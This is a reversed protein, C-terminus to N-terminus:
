PNTDYPHGKHDGLDHFHQNFKNIPGSPNLQDEKWNTPNNIISTRIAELERENRIIREYYDRQWVKKHFPEWDKEHVGEIYANTTISKFAGIINGLQIKKQNENVMREIIFLIFHIHNPMLQFVDQQIGPFKEHLIEWTQVVMQGAANPLMKDNKIEGLRHTGDNICITVFYAGEQGYDYGKLRISRRHHKHPDYRMQKNQKQAGM